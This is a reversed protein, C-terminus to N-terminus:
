VVSRQGWFPRPVETPAAFSVVFFGLPQHENGRRSTVVYGRRMYGAERGAGGFLNYFSGSRVFLVVDMARAKLAWFQRGFPTM